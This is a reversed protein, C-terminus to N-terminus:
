TLFKFICCLFWFLSLSLVNDYHATRGQNIVRGWLNIMSGRNDHVSRIDHDMAWGHHVMLRRNDHVPRRDDIVLRRYHEM